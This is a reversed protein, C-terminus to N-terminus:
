GVRRARVAPAEGIKMKYSGFAARKVSVTMGPRPARGFHGPAIQEWRGGEALTIIYGGDRNQSVATATSTIEDVDADQGRETEALVGDSAINFGFLERKTRRITDRDLVVVDGTDSAAALVKATREFCGLREATDVVKLCDIVDRVAPPPAKRAELAAAPLMLLALSVLIRM